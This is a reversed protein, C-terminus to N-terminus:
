GEGEGGGNESPFLEEREEATIHIVSDNMHDSIAEKEGETTHIDDDELHEMLDDYEEKTIHRAEDFENEKHKKYDKKLEDLTEIEEDQIVGRTIAERAVDALTQNKYISGSSNSNYLIKTVGAPIELTFEEVIGTEQNVTGQSIEIIENTNDMLTYLAAYTYGLGSIYYIDGETCAGVFHKAGILEKKNDLDVTDGVTMMGTPTFIETEPDYTGNATYIYSGEKAALKTKAKSAKSIVGNLYEMDTSTKSVNPDIEDSSFDGDKLVMKAICGVKYIHIGPANKIQYRKNRYTPYFVSDFERTAANYFVIKDIVTNTGTIDKSQCYIQITNPMFDTNVLRTKAVDEDEILEGVKIEATEETEGPEYEVKIDGNQWIYENINGSIQQKRMEDTISDYIVGCCMYIGAYRCDYEEYDYTTNDSYFQWLNGDIINIGSQALRLTEGSMGEVTGGNQAVATLFQESMSVYGEVINPMMYYFSGIKPEVVGYTM